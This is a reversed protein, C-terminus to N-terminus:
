MRELRRSRTVQAMSAVPIVLLAALIAMTMAYMARANM